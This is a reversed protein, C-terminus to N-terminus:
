GFVSRGVLSGIAAAVAGVLVGALGVFLVLSWRVDSLFHAVLLSLLLAGVTMIAGAILSSFPTSPNSAVGFLLGCLAAIIVAGVPWGKSLFTLYHSAVVFLLQVVASIALADQLVYWQITPM